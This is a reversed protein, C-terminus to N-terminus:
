ADAGPSKAFAASYIWVFLFTAAYAALTGIWVGWKPFAMMAVFTYVIFNFAGPFFLSKAVSPMAAKGQLHYYILFTSTFAAPFASFLGGWINGITKALFVILTIIFGGILSRLAIHKTNMPFQKLAHIYPFKRVIFYAFLVVPFGYWISHVFTAPPFKLLLFAGFAWVALGSIISTLFGRASLVAFVMVFLYDPGMAAPIINAAEIMDLPTKTLGIFFLGLALTSPVTLVIGRWKVSVREAILTQLAIFIGGVLFSTILQIPFLM